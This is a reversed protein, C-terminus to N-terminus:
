PVILYSLKRKQTNLLFSVFNQYSGSTSLTEALALQKDDSYDGYLFSDYLIKKNTQATVYLDSDNWMQISYLVQKRRDYQMVFNLSYNGYMSSGKHLDTVIRDLKQFADDKVDYLVVTYKESEYLSALQFMLTERDTTVMTNSIQDLDMELRVEDLLKGETSYLRGYLRGGEEEIVALRNKFACMSILTGKQVDKQVIQTVRGQPDVRYIGTPDKDLKANSLNADFDLARVSVYFDEKIKVDYLTQEGNGKLNGYIDDANGGGFTSYLYIDEETRNEDLMYNIEIDKKGNKTRMLTSKKYEPFTKSNGYGNSLSIIMDYTLHDVKDSYTCYPKGDNYTMCEKKMDGTNMTKADYRARIDMYVMQKEANKKAYEMYGAPDYTTTFTDGVADVRWINHMTNFNDFQQNDDMIYFSYTLDRIANPDGVSKNEQAAVTSLGVVYDNRRSYVLLSFVIIMGLICLPLYGMYKKM